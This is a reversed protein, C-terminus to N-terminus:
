KRTTLSNNDECETCCDGDNGCCFCCPFCGENVVDRIFEDVSKVSQSEYRQLVLSKESTPCAGNVYNQLKQITKIDDLYAVEQAQTFFSSTIFILGLSILTIFQKM